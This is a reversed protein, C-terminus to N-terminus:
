SFWATNVRGAHRLPDTRPRGSQSDWLQASNGSATLVLSGDPSFVASRVQDDHRLPRGLAEGTSANWVRAAKDASGTVLRIGDGSFRVSAANHKMEVAMKVM